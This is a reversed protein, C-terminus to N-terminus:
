FGLVSFVIDASWSIIKEGGETENLLEKNLYLNEINISYSSNELLSITRVVNNFNGSIFIKLSILDDKKNEINISKVELITNNEKGLEELFEVFLDAKKKELFYSDIFSQTEEYESIKDSMLELNEKEIMKLELAKVAAYTHENKNEIIKFLFVFLLITILASLISLILKITVKEKNM